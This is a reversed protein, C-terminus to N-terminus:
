NFLYQNIKEFQMPTVYGLTSHLRQSNYFMEIYNIADAKAEQRTKYQKYDTRESKLSGFFREMVANDWCNGKRSMSVTIGENVLLAQYNSSTYQCGRDSHHMLGVSPSRRGIAMKLANDILEERMHKDIAWGVVRRSFLDLVAAIYVWGEHTWLYTIDTVWTKNPASVTFERNLLNDAVPHKHDSQTTVKYRRRQKCAVGAKRMLSRAKYRGVLVGKAKLSESMRRSGYSSFSAKDIAKVEVMLKQERNLKDTNKLGQIYAYYGSRYVKM